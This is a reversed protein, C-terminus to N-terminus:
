VMVSPTTLFLLYEFCSKIVNFAYEIYIAL